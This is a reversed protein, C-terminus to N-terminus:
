LDGAVHTLGGNRYSPHRVFVPPKAGPTVEKRSPINDLKVQTAPAAIATMLPVMVAAAGAGSLVQRRSMTKTQM